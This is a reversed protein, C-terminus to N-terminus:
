SEYWLLYVVVEGSAGEAKGINLVTGDALRMQATPLLAPKSPDWWDKDPLFVIRQEETLEYESLPTSRLFARWDDASMRVKLYIAQVPDSDRRLGVAQTGGPFVVQMRQACEALQEATVETTASGGKGGISQEIRTCGTWAVMLAVVAAATLLSPGCVGRCGRVNALM